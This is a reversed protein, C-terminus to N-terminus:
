RGGTGVLQTFDRAIAHVVRGPGAEALIRTEGGPFGRLVTGGRWVWGAITDGAVTAIAQGASPLEEITVSEMADALEHGACVATAAGRETMVMVVGEPDGGAAVAGGAWTVWLRTSARRWALASAIAAAERSKQATVTAPAPGAVIRELEARDMGADLARAALAFVEVDSEFWVATTVNVV